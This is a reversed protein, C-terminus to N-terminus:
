STPPRRAGPLSKLQNGLFQSTSNMRGLLTDLQTFQKLYREESKELKRELRRRQQEIETLREGYGDTRMKLIGQSELFNNILEDLQVAVGKSYVLKGRRGIDGGIFEVQLGDIEGQGTLVNGTGLTRHTGISGKIDVGPQGMGLSLGLDEQLEFDASVMEISSGSGLKESIIIIRRDYFSTWVKAGNQVLNADQNVKEQIADAMEHGSFYNGHDLKISGTKIGDVKLVFEDNSESIYLPFSNRGMRIAAYGGKTPKQTVNIPYTGSASRESADLFNVQPDTTRGTKSFLNMVEEINDEIARQLKANNLNLKGTSNTTIGVGALSQYKENVHAFSSGVIRRVQNAVGRVTADGNLPGSIRTEPDFGSLEAVAEVLKNHGEVFAKVKDVVQLQNLVVEIDASGTDKLTLTLGDIVDTIVNSPSFLTLGDIDLEADVAQQAEVMNSGEGDDFTPDYSLMSLSLMDLNDGDDDQVSIRISNDAGTLESTIVLRDVDDDHIVSAKLGIKADNIIKQIDRLSSRDDPIKLVHLEHEPNPKFKNNDEDYRGFQIRLSGSGIPMFDSDFGVSILRQAEALTEVEVEYEGEQALNSASVTVVGEDDSTAAMSQLSEMKQFGKLSSQFEALASKLTGIASLGAQLKAEKRDLRSRIPDGEATVLKEVLAPVDLGSGIGASSISAM